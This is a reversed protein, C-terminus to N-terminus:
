KAMAKFLDNFDGSQKGREILDRGTVGGKPPSGSGVVASQSAQEALQASSREVGEDLAKTRLKEIRAVFKSLPPAKLMNAGYAEKYLDSLEKVYEGDFESSAPNFRPNAAELRQVEAKLETQWEKEALEQRILAAEKKSALESTQFVAQKLQEMTINGDEYQQFPDQPPASQESYWAKAEAQQRYRDAEEKAERLEHSLDSIRRQARGGKNEESMAETPEQAAAEEHVVPSPQEAPQQELEPNQAEQPQLEEPM